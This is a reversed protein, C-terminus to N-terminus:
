GGVRTVALALDTALGPLREPRFVGGAHRQVFSAVEAGAATDWATVRYEGAELGPIGLRVEVPAADRRLMGDAGVTDTRLLWAVAQAADGCAFAAAGPTGGELEATLNRRRFRPWDVLPLFGALGRQAVRMGRTLSHPRRNPWRMGGGVAGSALHAWQMHRFYEDDFPEPFTIGLDKYSHIPGHETDLFPRGDRVEGIATRVLRATDIAPAVTDRPYDITGEMYVHSSAFDLSPHRFIADALPLHPKWHLEPGYISVTQPHSRGYLRMELTRVHESLDAIAENFVDVCDPRNDAQNPNIENWLDWAFLTGTAGWREVAFTFRAKMAARTEPCLLARGPHACPGGRERSLPHYRWRIWTWFTDYPAVLLRLGHRGCLAFLDDWFRVMNPQFVGVPRELYRNRKHACELMVRLVTVGHEALYRVYAEAAPLDRRRFLPGLDPWTCADNQGVPTWAEGHETVFYPADPAVSIWPLGFPA